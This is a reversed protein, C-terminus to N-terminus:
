LNVTLYHLAMEAASAADTSYFDAGIKDCFLQTVPAGGIMIKVKEPLSSQKRKEVINEMEGM